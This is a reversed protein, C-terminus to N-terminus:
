PSILKSRGERQCYQKIKFGLSFFEKKLAARGAVRLVRWQEKLSLGCFGSKIYCEFHSDIAQKRLEDCNQNKDSLLEQQLCLRVKPMWDILRNSQTRNELALYKECLPEALASLYHKEGCRYITEQCSYFDCSNDSPICAIARFSILLLIIFRM